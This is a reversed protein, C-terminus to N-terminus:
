NIKRMNRKRRLANGHKLLFAEDEEIEPPPDWLKLHKPLYILGILTISNLVCPFIVLFNLTASRFYLTETIYLVITLIISCIGMSVIPKYHIFLTCHILALAKLVSYIGVVRSVTYKETFNGIGVSAHILDANGDDYEMDPTVNNLFSRKEIYSRIATGLDVFAVFAIWGRFAYMLKGNM